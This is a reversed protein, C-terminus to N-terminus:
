NVQLKIINGWPIDTSGTTIMLPSYWPEEIHDFYAYMDSMLIITADDSARSDVWEFYPKLDTGGRGTIEFNDFEDVSSIQTINQLDADIEVITLLEPQGEEFIAKIESMFAQLEANSVSGSTDLGM